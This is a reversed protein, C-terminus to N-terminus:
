LHPTPIELVDRCKRGVVEGAQLGLGWGVSQGMGRGGMAWMSWAPRGHRRLVKAASLM